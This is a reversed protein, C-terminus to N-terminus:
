IALVNVKFNNICEETAISLEQKLRAAENSVLENYTPANLNSEPFRSCIGEAVVTKTAVDIIRAKASYIVRYHTWDTPFYNMAWGTTQVDVIYKAGNSSAAIIGELRENEVSIHTPISRVGYKEGLAESLKAAIKGAPDAVNNELVLKNGESIAAFAGAIAFVAKGASMAVFDPKVSYITQAVPQDKMASITKSDLPQNRVTACGSFLVISLSAFFLSKTKHSKM